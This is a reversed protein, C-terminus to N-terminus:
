QQPPPQLPLSCCDQAGGCRRTQASRPSRRLPWSSCQHGRSHVRGPWCRRLFTAGRVGRLGQTHPLHAMAARGVEWAASARGAIVAVALETAPAAATLRRGERPGADGDVLAVAARVDAVVAERAALRSLRAEPAVAGGAVAEHAGLLAVRAVDLAVVAASLRQAAHATRVM